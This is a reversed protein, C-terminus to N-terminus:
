ALTLDAAGLSELVAAIQAVVADGVPLIPRPPQAQSLGMLNAMAYVVRLSGHTRFLHWLPALAAEWRAVSAVDGARAAHDLALAVDPLIGGIVSFWSDAGAMRAASCGWDGSYGVLFGDPTAARLAAIETVPDDSLPMKVAAIRPHSALSAILDRSFTFHTTSPNNYLCLPLATADAVTRVHREVEGATLPTYSMPALLVGDAAEAARAYAVATDTRLASIGAILPARGGVVEVALAVARMREAESLYAYTGTSGLVAISDVGAAVLRELLGAFEAEILRGNADAPTIPFASLGRFPNVGM